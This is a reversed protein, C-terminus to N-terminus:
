EDEAQSRLSELVYKYVEQAELYWGAGIIAIIDSKTDSVGLAEDCYGARSTHSSLWETRDADYVSVESDAFEHAGDYDDGNDRIYEIASVIMAYKYNDPLMNGHADHVLDHVWEPTTSHDFSWFSEGNSRTQTTFYGRAETALEQIPKTDTM